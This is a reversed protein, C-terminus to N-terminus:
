LLEDAVRHAGTGLRQETVLHPIQVALPIAPPRDLDAVVAGAGRGLDVRLEHEHAGATGRQPQHLLGPDGLYLAIATERHTPLEQAAVVGLQGGRVPGLDVAKRATPAGGIDAGCRSARTM